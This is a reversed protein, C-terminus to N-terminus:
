HLWLLFLNAIAAAAADILVLYWGTWLVSFLRTETENHCLATTGSADSTNLGVDKCTAM